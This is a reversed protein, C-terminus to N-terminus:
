LPQGMGQSSVGTVLGKYKDPFKSPDLTYNTAYDPVEVDVSGGEGGGRSEIHSGTQVGQSPTLWGAQGFQGQAGVSNPDLYGFVDAYQPAGPAGPAGVNAMPARPGARQAQYQSLPILNPM